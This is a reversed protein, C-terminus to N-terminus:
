KETTECIHELVRVHIRHIIEDTWFRWYISPGMDLSYWTRGLLKTRGDPLSILEFEGRRSLFSHQLHPPHIAAYPTLETLPDPQDVVDFALRNPKDWVTIPEIFSGTTFECHRVAGVGSGYINARLPSAVGLRFYWAPPTQIDPFDIVNEWVENPSADIVVSSEVVYERYSKLQVEIVNVLPMVLAVSGLMMRSQNVVTLALAWGLLGGLGGVPIMLPAAMVLCIVGEFAFLLLVAEGLVVCLTGVVFSAWAGKLDPQNFVYAAAAGAVLPMGIFLSSGYNHMTYISILVLGLSFLSGVFLGACAAFVKSTVETPDDIVVGTMKEMRKLARVSDGSAAPLSAFVLMAVLNVVPLFIWMCGWPSKGSDVARRCTMTVAIWLFPISWLAMAWPLWAPAAEFISERLSISPIFFQIPSFFRATFIHVTLMEVTYKFLMLGCGVAVYLSQSVTGHVGIIRWFIGLTNEALPEPSSNM